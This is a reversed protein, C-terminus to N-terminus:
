EREEERERRAADHYGAIRTFEEAAKESKSKRKQNDHLGEDIDARHKADDRQGTERERENRMAAGGEEGDEEHAAEDEVDGGVASSLTFLYGGSPRNNIRKM